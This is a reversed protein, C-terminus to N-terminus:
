FQGLIVLIFSNFCPSIAYNRDSFTLYADVRGSKMFNHEVQFDTVGIVPILLFQSSCMLKAINQVLFADKSEKKMNQIM